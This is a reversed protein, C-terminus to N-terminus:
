PTFGAERLAADVKFPDGTRVAARAAALVESGHIMELTAVRESRYGIVIRRWENIHMSRSRTIRFTM